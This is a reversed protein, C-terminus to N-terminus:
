PGRDDPARIDENTETRSLAALDATLARAESLRGLRRWQSLALLWVRQARQPHGAKVALDGGLRALRPIDDHLVGGSALVVEAEPLLRDWAEWDGAAAVSPLMLVQLAGISNWDGIEELGNMAETLLARAEEYEGAEVSMVGLKVLPALHGGAGLARYLALAESFLQRAEGVEGRAGAIAGQQTMCQAASNRAGLDEFRERAERAFKEAEPLQEEQLAIMSLQLTMAAAGHSLGHASFERRAHLTAERASEYRGDLLMVMGIGARCAAFLHPDIREEALQTAAELHDLAEGLEGRLTAVRGLLQRAWGAMGHWNSEKARRQLREAMEAARDLRNREVEVGALLVLGEGWRPDADPINLDDMALERQAVLAEAQRFDGLDARESAGELLPELARDLDGALLLHRGRREAHGPAVRDGLMRACAAHVKKLRGSDAARREISERLMAHAFTWSSADHGRVVRALRHTLLQELLKVSPEMGLISATAFWEERDVQEGLV